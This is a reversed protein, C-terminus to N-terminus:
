RKFATAPTAEAISTTPFPIEIVVHRRATARGWRYTAGVRVGAASGLARPAPRQYSRPCAPVQSRRVSWRCHEDAPGSAAGSIKPSPTFRQKEM